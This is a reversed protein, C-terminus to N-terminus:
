ETKEPSASDVGLAEDLDVTLTETEAPTISVERVLRGGPNVLEVSHTGAGLPIRGGMPTTDVFAGDVYVDAWPEVVVKLWGVDEASRAGLAAGGLAGAHGLWWTGAVGATLGIALAAGVVATVAGPRPGAQGRRRRRQRPPTAAGETAATSQFSAAEAADIVGQTQLYAMLVSQYNEEVRAALLDELDRVLDTTNKYRDRPQKELCRDIIAVVEHPADPVAKRLTPHPELRIMQMVMEDRDALFPKRGGLMQYLVVGFSFLDSRFDITGGLTQEPSMYAPTGLGVGTLTMEQFAEDRAIGFDMLKVEGRKSLIVNAPKIDRHIVGRYHAYELARAVGLAVVLAVDAPLRSARDLLDYLDIGEVFELVMYYDDRDKIFDYIHIINEHALAAISLAEREFRVAVQPEHVYDSKLQKIAVDRGLSDQHARHVLAMGGVGIEGLIRYRGIRDAPSL